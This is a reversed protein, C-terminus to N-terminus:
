SYKVGLLRTWNSPRSRSTEELIKGAGLAVCMLPNEAIHVPVQTTQRLMEDLGALMAGGGALVIGRDIIDSAMEPPSKELTRRVCEWIAKLPEQLAERVESSTIQIASPLGTNLHIGKIVMAKEEPGRWASGIQIKIQEATREGIMLSHVKRMYVAIADNMEDGAVGLSESVVIRGLSIVAVETTGGGIDVIMSGTPDLVPLGAGVAAALPEKALIVDPKFGTTAKEAAELVIREEVQTMGSPVGIVMRTRMVLQHRPQAKTLFYSIMMHAADLDAIVGKKLPRIAQISEPTRGLMAKAEEGVSMPKRTQQDIAVVSPENLVIGKGKLYVLTNATGLDMAINLYVPNLLNTLFSM